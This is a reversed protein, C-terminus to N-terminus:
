RSSWEFLLDGCEGFILKWLKDESISNGRGGYSIGIQGRPSLRTTGGSGTQLIINM